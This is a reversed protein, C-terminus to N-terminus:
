QIPLEESTMELNQYGKNELIKKLDTTQFLVDSESTRTKETVVVVIQAFGNEPKFEPKFESVGKLAYIEKNLLNVENLSKAGEFKYYYVTKTTKGAPKTTQATMCFPLALCFLAIFFSKIYNM